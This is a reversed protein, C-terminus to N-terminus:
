TCQKWTMMFPALNSIIGFHRSRQQISLYLKFEKQMHIDMYFAAATHKLNRIHMKKAKRLVVTHATYQIQAYRLPTIHHKIESKYFSWQDQDSLDLDFLHDQDKTHDLDSGIIKMNQDQDKIKSRWNQLDIKM